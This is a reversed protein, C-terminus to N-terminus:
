RQLSEALCEIVKKGFGYSQVVESFTATSPIQGEHAFQHRWTIINGYSTLVSRGSNRLVDKEVAEIKKSFKKVYKEGFLILYKDKLDRTKIKGNIQDFYNRTFEGLVKHKREGFNTFIEKIALEYVTVATVAAFGVYRSILFSDNIGLVTTNLHAIFDDALKYHDFYAM